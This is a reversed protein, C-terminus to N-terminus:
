FRLGVGGVLQLMRQTYGPQTFTYPVFTGTVPDMIFTHITRSRYFSFVESADLRLFIKQAPYFEVVGGVDLAFNTQRQFRVAFPVSANGTVFKTTVGNVQQLYQAHGCVLTQRARFRISEERFDPKAYEWGQSVSDVKVPTWTIVKFTLPLGTSTSTSGAVGSNHTRRSVNARVPVLYPHPMAWHPAHV